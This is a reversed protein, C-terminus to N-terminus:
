FCVLKISKQRFWNQSFVSVRSRQAINAAYLRLCNGKSAAFFKKNEESEYPWNNYLSLYM